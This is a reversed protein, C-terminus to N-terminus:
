NLIDCLSFICTGQAWHPIEYKPKSEDDSEDDDPESDLVYNVANQCKNNAQVAQKYQLFDLLENYLHL